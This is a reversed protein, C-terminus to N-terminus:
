VEVNSAVAIAWERSSEKDRVVQSWRRSPGLSGKSSVVEEMKPSALSEWSMSPSSNSVAM